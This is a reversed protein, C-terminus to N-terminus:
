RPRREVGAGVDVASRVTLAPALLQLLAPLLARASALSGSRQAEYFDRGYPTAAL